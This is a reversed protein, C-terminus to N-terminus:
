LCFSKSKLLFDLLFDSFCDNSSIEPFISATLPIIFSHVNSECRTCNCANKLLTVRPNRFAPASTRRGFVYEKLFHMCWHVM